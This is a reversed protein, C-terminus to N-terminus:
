ATRGALAAALAQAITSSEYPKDIVQSVGANRARSRLEPGGYGSAIVVRVEPRLARLKMALQTGTLDPMLEDTLVVDFREPRAGFAELAKVSSEFGVPEYGLRALMDETMALVAPDDDVVLVTEGSGRPTEAARKEAVMDSKRAAPLYVKFLTGEGPKTEVHIAGGQDAVIAQVLALGLGTGRGQGKTTFFPEFMRAAVEPAIGIGEDRVSLVAHPGPQLHGQSLARPREVRESGLGIVLQGGEPMAQVANICLNMLLQHMHTADAVVGAHPDDVEVRITVNAPTSAVLLDRLESVVPWLEVARKERAGRRAFTLIQEVLAKGRRGADMIASLQQRQRSGAPTDAEALEGYGLIAGLINNFDHAIGGAMTGLAEMKQAERLQADLGVREAEARKRETVDKLFGIARGAKGHPLRVVRGTDEVDIYVGDKRRLRYELTHTQQEGPAVETIQSKIKGLDKPHVCALWADADGLEHPEYGLVGHTNGGWVVEHTDLDLDYLVNGASVVAAEYRLKWEEATRQASMRERMLATGTLTMVAAVMLFMQLYLVSLEPEVFAASFPGLGRMTDGVAIISVLIMAASQGRTRFRLAAWVLFPIIFHTLPPVGGGPIPGASFAVHSVVILGGFCVVAEIANRTRIRKFASPHFDVWALVFPTILLIGLADSVWWARFTQLFPQDSFVVSVFAGSAAALLNGGLPAILIFLILRRIGDLRLPTGLWRRITLSALLLCAFYVSAYGLSKHLAHTVTEAHLVDALFVSALFPLWLRAPAILLMALAFGGAPWLYAIDGVRPTMRTSLWALAFYAGGVLLCAM